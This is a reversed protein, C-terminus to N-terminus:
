GLPSGVAEPKQLSDVSISDDRPRCAGPAYGWKVLHDALADELKQRRADTMQEQWELQQESTLDGWRWQRPGGPPFM